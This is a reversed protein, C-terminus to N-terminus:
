VLFWFVVPGTMLTLCKLRARSASLNNAADKAIGVLFRYGFLLPAQGIKGDGAFFIAVMICFTGHFFLPSTKHLNSAVRVVILGALSFHVIM